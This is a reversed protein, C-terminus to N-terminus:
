GKAKAEKALRADEDRQAQLVEIAQARSLGNLSETIKTRIAEETIGKPAEAPTMGAIEKAAALDIVSPVAAETPAGAEGGDAAKASSPAPKSPETTKKSM